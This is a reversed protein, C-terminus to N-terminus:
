TRSSEGRMGELKVRAIASLNIRRGRKVIVVDEGAVRRAAEAVLGELGLEDLLAKYGLVLGSAVGGPELNERLTEVDFVLVDVPKRALSRLARKIEVELEVKEDVSELRDIVVLIDIDRVRVGSYM